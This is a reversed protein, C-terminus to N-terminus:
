INLDDGNTLTNAKILDNRSRNLEGINLYAMGRRYLAKENEEDKDLVQSCYNIAHHNKGLRLYCLGLNLCVPIEVEQIYKLATDKDRILSDEQGEAFGDFLAKM